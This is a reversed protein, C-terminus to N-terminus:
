VPKPELESNIVEAKRILQHLATAADVLAAKAEELTEASEAHRIQDKVVTLVFVSVAALERARELKKVV